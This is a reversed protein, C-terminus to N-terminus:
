GKGCAAERALSAVHCKAHSLLNQLGCGVVQYHGRAVVVGSYFCKLAGHGLLLAVASRDGFFRLVLLFGVAEISAIISKRGLGARADAAGAAFIRDEASSFENVDHVM